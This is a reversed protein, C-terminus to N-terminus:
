AAVNLTYKIKENFRHSVFRVLLWFVVSIERLLDASNPM